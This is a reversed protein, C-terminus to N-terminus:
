IFESEKKTNLFNELKVAWVFVFVVHLSGRHVLNVPNKTVKLGTLKIFDM